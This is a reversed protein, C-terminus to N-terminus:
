NSSTSGTVPNLNLLNIGNIDIVHIINYIMGLLNHITILLM